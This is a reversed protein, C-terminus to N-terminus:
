EASDTEGDGLLTKRAGEIRYNAEELYYGAAGIDEFIDNWKPHDIPFLNALKEAIQSIEQKIELLKNSDDM